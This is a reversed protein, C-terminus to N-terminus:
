NNKFVFFFFHCSCYSLDVVVHWFVWLRALLEIAKNNSPRRLRDGLGVDTFVERQRAVIVEAKLVSILGRIALDPQIQGTLLTQARQAFAFYADFHQPFIPHIWPKLSLLPVFSHRDLFNSQHILDHKLVISRPLALRTAANTAGKPGHEAFAEHLSFAYETSHGGWYLLRYILGIVLWWFAVLLVSLESRLMHLALWVWM